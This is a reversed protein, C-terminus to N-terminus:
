FGNRTLLQNDKENWRDYIKVNCEGISDDLYEFVALDVESYDNSQTIIEQNNEWDIAIFRFKHKTKQTTQAFPSKYKGHWKKM